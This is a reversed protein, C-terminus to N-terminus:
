NHERALRYMMESGTATTGVIDKGFYKTIRGASQSVINAVIGKMKKDL